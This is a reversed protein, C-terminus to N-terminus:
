DERIACIKEAAGAFFYGSGGESVLQLMKGGDLVRIGGLVHVGRSFFTPPWPSATPGALVVRRCGSAADLLADLGGEVLASGTIVAVSARMLVHMAQAPSRWFRMEEAKLAGQHKDVIWLDAVRGRLAKIFPVFAGVMAVRDELLMGQSKWRMAALWCGDVQSATARWRWSRCRM